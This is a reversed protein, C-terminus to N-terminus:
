RGFPYLCELGRPASQLGGAVASFVHSITRHRRCMGPGGGGEPRSWLRFAEVGTDMTDHTCSVLMPVALGAAVRPRVWALAGRGDRVWPVRGSPTGPDSDRGAPRVVSPPARCCSSRLMMPRSRSPRSLIVMNPRPSSALGGSLPSRAVVGPAGVRRIVDRGRCAYSDPRKGGAVSPIDSSPHAASTANCVGPFCSMTRGPAATLRAVARWM